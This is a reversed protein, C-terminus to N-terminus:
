NSRVSIQHCSLTTETSFPGGTESQFRSCTIKRSRVSIQHCYLTTETSFPGGTESQFRSCTFKRQLITVVTRLAEERGRSEKTQPLFLRRTLFVLSSRMQATAASSLLASPPPPSELGSVHGTRTVAKRRTSFFFVFLFLFGLLTHHNHHGSPRTGM